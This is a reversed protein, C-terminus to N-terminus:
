KTESPIKGPLNQILEGLGQEDFSKEAKARAMSAFSDAVRRRALRALSKTSRVYDLPKWVDEGAKNVGRSEITYQLKDYDRIRLDGTLKIPEM